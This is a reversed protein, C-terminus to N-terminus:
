EAPVGESEPAGIQEDIGATHQDKESHESGPHPDNGGDDEVEDGLEDAPNADRNEFFFHSEVAIGRILLHRSQHLRSVEPFLNTEHSAPIWPTNSGCAALLM